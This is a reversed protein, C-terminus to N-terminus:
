RDGGPPLEQVREAIARVTPEIDFYWGLRAVVPDTCTARAHRVLGNDVPCGYSQEDPRLDIRGRRHNQPLPRYKVDLRAMLAAQEEIGHSLDATV